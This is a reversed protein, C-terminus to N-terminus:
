KIENLKNGLNDLIKQYIEEIREAGKMGKIKDLNAKRDLYEDLIQNIKGTRTVPIYEEEEEIEESEKKEPMGWASFNNENYDFNYDM